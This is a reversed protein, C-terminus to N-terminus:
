IFEMDNEDVAQKLEEVLDLVDQRGDPLLAVFQMWNYLHYALHYVVAGRDLSTHPDRLMLEAAALLDVAADVGDGFLHHAATGVMEEPASPFAIKIAARGDARRNKRACLATALALGEEMTRSVQHRQAQPADPPNDDSM